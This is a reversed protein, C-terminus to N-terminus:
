LNGRTNRHKFLFDFPPILFVLWFLRNSRMGLLYLSSTSLSRPRIASFILFLRWCFPTSGLLAPLAKSYLVPWRVSCQAAAPDAM